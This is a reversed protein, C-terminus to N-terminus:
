GELPSVYDAELLASDVTEVVGSLAFKFSPGIKSRSLLLRFLTFIFVLKVIELISIVVDFIGIL